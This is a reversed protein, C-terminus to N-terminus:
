NANKSLQQQHCWRRSQSRDLDGSLLLPPHRRRQCQARMQQALDAVEILVIDSTNKVWVRIVRETSEAIDVKYLPVPVEAEAALDM